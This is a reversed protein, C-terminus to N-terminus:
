LEVKFGLSPIPPLWQYPNKIYFDIKQGNQTNNFNSDKTYTMGLAYHNAAPLDLSDHVAFYLPLFTVLGNELATFLPQTVRGIALAYKFNSNPEFVINLRPELTWHRSQLLHTTRLGLQFDWPHFTTKILTFGNIFRVRKDLSFQDPAYDFFLNVKDQYDFIATLPTFRQVWGYSFAIESWELGSHWQIHDPAVVWELRATRDRFRNEITHSGALDDEKALDIYYQFLQNATTKLSSELQKQFRNGAVSQYVLLQSKIKGWSQQWNIGMMTNQWGYHDTSTRTHEIYKSSDQEHYVFHSASNEDQFDDDFQFFSVDIQSSSVPTISIKAFLDKFRYPVGNGINNLLWQYYSKRFSLSWKLWQNQKRALTIAAGLVSLDLSGQLTEDPDISHLSLVSSLRGGFNAPFGGPSFTLGDIMDQNFASALGFLHYPYYVPIGDLLVLNQDSGGGRVYLESSFENRVTVGPIRALLHNLEPYLVVPAQHIESASINRAGPAIPIMRNFPKESEIEIQDMAIV